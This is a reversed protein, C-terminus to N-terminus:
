CCNSLPHHKENNRWSTNEQTHTGLGSWALSQSNSSWDLAELFPWHLSPPPMCVTRSRLYVMSFGRLKTSERWWFGMLPLWNPFCCAMRGKGGPRESRRDWIASRVGVTIPREIWKWAAATLRRSLENGQEKISHPFSCPLAMKNRTKVTRLLCDPANWFHFCSDLDRRLHARLQQPRFSSFWNRERRQKHWWVCERECEVCVLPCTKWLFFLSDSGFILVGKQHSIGRVDAARM